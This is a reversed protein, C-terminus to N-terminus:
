NQMELVMKGKLQEHEIWCFIHDTETSDSVKELLEGFYYTQVPHFYGITSHKMYTEASCIKDKVYVRFGSEELCEREICDTHHEGKELGGGLLFFGKPTKVVGVQNNQFPILYVGERDLYKVNEKVGFIKHKIM